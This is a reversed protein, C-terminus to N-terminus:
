SFYDRQQSPFSPVSSPYEIRYNPVTWQPQQPIYTPYSPVYPICPVYVYNPQNNPKDELAGLRDSLKRVEKKLEDLKNLVDKESM